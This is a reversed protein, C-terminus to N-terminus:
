SGDRRSLEAVLRTITAQLQEEKPRLEWGREYCALEHGDQSRPKDFVYLKSVQGEDIGFRSPECFVLAEFYYSGATGVYWTGGSLSRSSKTVTIEADSPGVARPAGARPGRRTM